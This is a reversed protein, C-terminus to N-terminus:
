GSLRELLLRALRLVPVHDLWCSPAYSIYLVGTEGIRANELMTLVAPPLSTWAPQVGDLWYGYAEDRGSTM